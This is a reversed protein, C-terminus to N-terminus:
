VGLTVNESYPGNGPPHVDAAAFDKSELILFHQHQFSVSVMAATLTLHHELGRSEKFRAPHCPLHTHHAM